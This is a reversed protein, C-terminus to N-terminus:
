SRNWKEEGEKANHVKRGIMREGEGFCRTLPGSSTNKGNRSKAQQLEGKKPRRRTEMNESENKSAATKKEGKQIMIIIERGNREDKREGCDRQKTHKRKKLRDMDNTEKEAIWGNRRTWKCLMVRREVCSLRYGLIRKEKEHERCEEDRRM